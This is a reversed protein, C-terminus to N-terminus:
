LAIQIMAIQFTIEPWRCKVILQKKTNALILQQTESSYENLAILCDDNAAKLESLLQHYTSINRKSLPSISLDQISLIITKSIDCLYLGHELASADALQIASTYQRKTVSLRNILQDLFRVSGKKQGIAEAVKLELERTAEYNREAQLRARSNKYLENLISNGVKYTISEEM